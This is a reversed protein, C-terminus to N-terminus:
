ALQLNMKAALPLVFIQQARLLLLDDDLDHTGDKATAYAEPLGSTAELQKLHTPHRCATRAGQM